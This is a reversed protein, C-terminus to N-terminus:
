CRGGVVRRKMLGPPNEFNKKHKFGRFFRIVIDEEVVGYCDLTKFRVGKKGLFINM